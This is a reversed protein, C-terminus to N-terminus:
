RVTLVIWRSSMSRDIDLNYDWLVLNFIVIVEKKMRMVVNALM